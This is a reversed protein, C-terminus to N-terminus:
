RAPPPGPAVGRERRKLFEDTDFPIDKLPEIAKLSGMVHDMLSAYDTYVSEIFLAYEQVPVTEEGAGTRAQVRSLQSAHFGAKTKIARLIGQIAMYYSLRPNQKREIVLRTVFLTVSIVAVVWSLLERGSVSIM